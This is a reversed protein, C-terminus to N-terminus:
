NSRGRRSVAARPADAPATTDALFAGRLSHWALGPYKHHIGRPFAGTYILVILVADLRFQGLRRGTIADFLLATVTDPTDLLHRLRHWLKKPAFALM